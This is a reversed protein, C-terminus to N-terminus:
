SGMQQRHLRAQPRVLIKFLSPDEKHFTNVLEVIRAVIRQSLKSAHWSQQFGRHVTPKTGLLYRGRSPRHAVQWAQVCERGHQGM